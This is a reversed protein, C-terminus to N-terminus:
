RLFSRSGSAPLRNITEEIIISRNTKKVYILVLWSHVFTSHGSRVIWQYRVGGGIALHMTTIVSPSRLAWRGRITRTDCRDMSVCRNSTGFSFLRVVLRRAGHGSWLYWGSSGNFRTRDGISIWVRDVSTRQVDIASLLMLWRWRNDDIRRVIEKEIRSGASDLLVWNIM